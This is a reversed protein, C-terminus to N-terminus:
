TRRRTDWCGQRHTRGAHVLIPAIFRLTTHNPHHHRAYPTNRRPQYIMSNRLDTIYRDLTDLRDAHWALRRRQLMCLLAVHYTTDMVHRNSGIEMANGFKRTAPAIRYRIIGLDTIIPSETTWCDPPEAICRDLSGTSKEFFGSSVLSTFGGVLASCRTVIVLDRHTILPPDLLHPFAFVVM